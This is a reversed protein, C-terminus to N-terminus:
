FIQTVISLYKEHKIRSDLLTGDITRYMKYKADYFLYRHVKAHTKSHLHIVDLWDTENYSWHHKEYGEKSPIDGAASTARKKEPYKDQWNTNSKAKVVPNAPRGAYLRHYKARGRAREKVPFSPDTALLRESNLKSDMCTCEKCKNLHGDKAKPHKYFDSLPKNAGCKFCNKERM